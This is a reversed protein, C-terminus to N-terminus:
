LKEFVIAKTELREIRSIHLRIDEVKPAEKLIYQIPDSYATINGSVIICNRKYASCIKKDADYLRKEGDKFRNLIFGRLFGRDDFVARGRVDGEPLGMVADLVTYSENRKRQM